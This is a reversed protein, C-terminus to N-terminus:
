HSSSLYLSHSPPPSFLPSFLFYFRRKGIHWPSHTSRFKLIRGRGTLNIVQPRTITPLPMQLADSLNELNKCSTERLSREEGLAGAASPVKKKRKKRKIKIRRV